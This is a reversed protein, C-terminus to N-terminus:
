LNLKKIIIPVLKDWAKGNPHINDFASLYEQTELFKYEPTDFRIVIIGEKELESWRDTKAIVGHSDVTPYYVIIVLKTHPYKKHLSNQLEKVYLEFIDFKQDYTMKTFIGYSQSQWLATRKLYDLFTINATNPVIHNGRVKFLNRKESYFLGNYDCLLRRLHDNIYTYILYEPENDDRTLETNQVRYLVHQISHGTRGYNYVKRKTFKQLKYGLTEETKIGEGFTFSCGDTIIPKLSEKYPLKFNTRGTDIPICLENIKYEQIATCIWDAVIFLYIPLFVIAIIIILKKAINKKM